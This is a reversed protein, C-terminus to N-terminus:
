VVLYNQLRKPVVLLLNRGLGTSRLQSTGCQVSNSSPKGQVGHKGYLGAVYCKQHSKLEFHEFFFFAKSMFLWFKKLFVVNLWFQTHYQMPCFYFTQPLRIVNRVIYMDMCLKTLLNLPDKLIFPWFVRKLLTIHFILMIIYLFKPLVLYFFFLSM